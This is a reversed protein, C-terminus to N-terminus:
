GYHSDICQYRSGARKIADGHIITAGVQWPGHKIIFRFAGRFHLYDQGKFEARSGNIEFYSKTQGDLGIFLCNTTQMCVGPAEGARQAQTSRYEPNWEVDSDLFALWEGRDAKVGVNRAASAGSNEEYIYRISGRYPELAARSQDTSGDDVVIIEHDQFSQNQASRIAKVVFAERNYTPIIVSVRAMTEFGPHRNGQWRGRPCM